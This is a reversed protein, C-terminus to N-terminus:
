VELNNKLQRKKLLYNQSIVPNRLWDYTNDHGISHQIIDNDNEGPHLSRILQVDSEGNENHMAGDRGDSFRKNGDAETIVQYTGGKM